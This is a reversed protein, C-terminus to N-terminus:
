APRTVILRNLSQSVLGLLPPQGDLLHAIACLLNGLLRGPGSRATIDLVVRNLHVRLGLLDLDLPGLTLHLIRCTAAQRAVPISVPADTIRRTVNGNADRVAGNVLGSAVLQGNRTSFRTIDLTGSFTRNGSLRGSLPVNTVVHSVNLLSNLRNQLAALPIPSRDLLGAIGCLLNGLLRGPGRRATIDLVVRNLHVQLGLLDLDLPGLELHLIRCTGRVRELALPLAVPVNTVQRTVGAETLTGNLVGRAVLENGQGVFREVNFDGTLTGGTPTTGQIPIDRFVDSTRPPAAQALPAVALVTCIAALLSLLMRLKM